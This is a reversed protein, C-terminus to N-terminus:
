LTVEFGKLLATGGNHCASCAAWVERVASVIPLETTAMVRKSVSRWTFM